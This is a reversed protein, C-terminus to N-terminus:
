DESAHGGGVDIDISGQHRALDMNSSGQPKGRDRYILILGVMRGTACPPTCHEIQEETGQKEEATERDNMEPGVAQRESTGNRRPRGSESAFVLQDAFHYCLHQPQPFIQRCEFSLEADGPRRNSWRM